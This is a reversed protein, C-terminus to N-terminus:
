MIVKDKLNKAAHELQEIIRQKDFNRVEELDLHMAFGNTNHELYSQNKGLDKRMDVVQYVKIPHSFGKVRIEGKDRCMVTDKVLAWTEHSILIEGPEAASELRSALNVHTGLVTYDLHSNTGFSGVTCYGTNIGMRIQLLRKIGQKHWHKQLQKMRKRMAIAMSLCRVCDNKLGRSQSDGFIVMMGDGMFKDITGGHDTAIKSMETLYTNLLGTLTESELEESLQSFDKIDSFFVTLRKRETNLKKDKDQTIAQWVPPAIYRSLKYARVKNKKDELELLNKTDILHHLQKHSQRACIVFYAGAAIMSIVSLDHGTHESLLFKPLMNQSVLALSGALGFCFAVTDELWKRTGGIILANHQIMAFFLITPIIQLGTIALVVGIVSADFYNLYRNLQKVQDSSAQRCIRFGAFAYILLCTILIIHSLQNALGDLSLGSTLSGAAAFCILSRYYPSRAQESIMQNGNDVAIEPTSSVTHAHNIRM